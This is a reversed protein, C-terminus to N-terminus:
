TPHPTPSPLWRALHHQLGDLDTGAARYAVHGDPRVLYHAADAAGLRVL